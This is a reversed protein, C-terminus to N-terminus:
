RIKRLWISGGTNKFMIPYDLQVLERCYHVFYDNMFVIEFAENYMLFARLGYVENWSRNEKLVWNQGYEFPWFIDHFHVFVGPNLTPLINFLEHNVDSETKMVHTSDIFLFDGCELSNFISIDAKQVTCAHIKCRQVSNDGLLDVLLKPYPEIFSVDVNGDLYGDITDIACVSSFGSGVEILRQPKFRRLMAYLISGDGYGFAPNTFYYRYSPSKEEPFPIEKLYPLLENWIRIHSNQNIRIASPPSTTLKKKLFQETIEEVNVIPSYFHGPAVFLSTVKKHVNAFEDTKMFLDVMDSVSLGTALKSEWHKWDNPLPDRHFFGQYLNRVLKKQKEHQELTLNTEYREYGIDIGVLMFGLSRLDHGGYVSPSVTRDTKFVFEVVSSSSETIDLTFECYHYGMEKCVKAEPKQSGIFIEVSQAFQKADLYYKFKLKCRGQALKISVGSSNHPGSWRYTTGKEKEFEYFGWGSFSPALDIQIDTTIPSRLSFYKRLCADIKLSAQNTSVELTQQYLAIDLANLEALIAMDEDDLRLSEDKPTKNLLPANSPPYFGCLDALQLLGQDFQEVIGVFDFQKLRANALDLDFAVDNMFPLSDTMAKRQAYHEIIVDRPCDAALLSVQTNAFWKVVESNRIIEKFTKGEIDLQAPRFRPDRMAHRIASVTRAIPERLFTATKYGPPLLGVMRYDFHGMILNYKQLEDIDTSNLSLWDYKQLVDKEHYQDILYSRLSTGATKPIHLFFLKTEKMLQNV